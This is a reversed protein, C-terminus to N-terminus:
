VELMDIPSMCLKGNRMQQGWGSEVDIKYEDAHDVGKVLMQVAKAAWAGAIMSTFIISRAGCLPTFGEENSYLSAEYHEIGKQNQFDVLFVQLNQGAVRIDIFGTVGPNKKAAEFSERRPVMSDPSCIIIGRFVKSLPTSPEETLGEPVISDGMVKGQITKIDLPIPAFAMALKGAELIKAKGLSTKELCFQSAINHEEFHDSDILTIDTCGMKAVAFLGFSGVSGVGVFVLPVKLIEPSAWELQGMLRRKEMHQKEMFATEQADLTDDAIVISPDSM